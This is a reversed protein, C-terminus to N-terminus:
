KWCGLLEHFNKVLLVDSHITLQSNKNVIGIFKIQLAKAADYDSESDGLYLCEYPRLNWEKLILRINDVKSAPSGFVGDFYADWGREKIISVMEPQPTASVVFCRYKGCTRLFEEAGPIEKASIVEKVVLGSFEDCLERLRENTLPTKLFEQYFYKIKEDRSVGGHKVHYDLVRMQVEEGFDEFLKVFAKGKIDLSDVLVGDFDFIIAKIGNSIHQL